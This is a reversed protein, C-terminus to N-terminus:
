SKEVKKLKKKSNGEIMEIAYNIANRMEYFGDVDDIHFAGKLFIKMKKGDNEAEVQQAITYGGKSCESIVVNRGIAIKAKTIENYTM